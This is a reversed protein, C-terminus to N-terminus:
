KYICMYMQLRLFSLKQNTANDIGFDINRYLSLHVTPVICQSEEEFLNVFIETNPYFIYICESKYYLFCHLSWSYVDTGGYFMFCHHHM